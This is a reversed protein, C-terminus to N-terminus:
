GRATATDQADGVGRRYLPLTLQSPCSAADLYEKVLKAVLTSKKYGQLRCFDNLRALETAALLVTLREVNSM